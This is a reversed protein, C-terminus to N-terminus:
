VVAVTVGSGLEMQSRHELQPLAPDEVQQALGPISGSDESVM